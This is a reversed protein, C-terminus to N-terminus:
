LITIAHSLHHAQLFQYQQVRSKRPQPDHRVNRPGQRCTLLCPTQHLIEAMNTAFPLKWSANETPRLYLCLGHLDYLDSYTLYSTSTVCLRCKFSRYLQNQHRTLSFELEQDRWCQVSWLNNSSQKSFTVWLLCEGHRIETTINVVEARVTFRGQLYLM